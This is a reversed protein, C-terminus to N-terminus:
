RVSAAPRLLLRLAREFIKETKPRPTSAEFHGAEPLPLVEARDGAKVAAEVYARVSAPDVIPDEEGQIFIQPIGLPLRQRPSTEAYRRPFKEPGGGMLQDVSSHCSGPPGVRYTVLDTVAALGLVGRIALPDPQYLESEKPLCARSALWLALQGGASHGAAYVRQLDIPADQAIKRLADTAQAVDLFTGRWGGGDDGVRRYEITWSAVGRDALWAALRTMYHYDFAAMWCGGHVLVVVPFPGAGKPLRLEGFQQPGNGYAIQKAPAPMPLASLESWSLPKGLAFGAALISVFLIPLISKMFSFANRQAGPKQSHYTAAHLQKGGELFM